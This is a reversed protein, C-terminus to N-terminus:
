QLTAVEFWLLYILFNFMLGFWRNCIELRLSDTVYCTHTILLQLLVNKCYSIFNSTFFSWHIVFLRTTWLWIIIWLTRGWDSTYLFLFLFCFFLATLRLLRAVYYHRLWYIYNLFFTKSHLPNLLHTSDLIIRNLQKLSCIIWDFWFCSLHVWRQVFQYNFLAYVWVLLFVRCTLRRCGFSVYYM